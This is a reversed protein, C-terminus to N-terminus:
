RCIIGCAFAIYLLTLPVYSCVEPLYCAKFTALSDGEYVFAGNEVCHTDVVIIIKATPHDQFFSLAEDSPKASSSLNSHANDSDNGGLVIDM